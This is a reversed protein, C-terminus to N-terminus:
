EEVRYIHLAKFDKEFLMLKMSWDVLENIESSEIEKKVKKTGILAKVKFKM